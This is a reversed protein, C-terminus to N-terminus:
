KIYYYIPHNNQILVVDMGFEFVDIELIFKEKFNPLALVPSEYRACKFGEFSTNAENNWEFANKRVLNTLPTAITAYGQVFKRYIWTLGLFSRLQKINTPTPRNLKASIKTPGPEICEMSVIHGM